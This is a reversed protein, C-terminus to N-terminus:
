GVCTCLRLGLLHECARGSEVDPLIAAADDTTQFVRHSM